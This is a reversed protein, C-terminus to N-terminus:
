IGDFNLSVSPAGSSPAAAADAPWCAARPLGSSEPPFAPREATGNFLRHLPHHLQALGSRQPSAGSLLRLRWFFPHPGSTTFDSSQWGFCCFFTILCGTGPASAIYVPFLTWSTPDSITGRAPFHWLKATTVNVPSAMTAPRSQSGIGLHARAEVSLSRGPPATSPGRAM